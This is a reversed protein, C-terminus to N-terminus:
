RKIYGRPRKYNDTAWMPRLNTYHNLKEIDEDNEAATIPIIHDINWQGKGHGYNEMTMGEEFQSQIHSLFTEFDCGVMEWVGKDGEYGKKRAYSYILNYSSKRFRYIPDTQRKIREYDSRKQRNEINYRKRSEKVQEQHSEVYKKKREQFAQPNERYKERAQKNLKERNKDRWAKHRAKIEEKHTERYKKDRERKKAKREEPTM